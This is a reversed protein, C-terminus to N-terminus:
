RDASDDATYSLGLEGGVQELTLARVELQITFASGLVTLVHEDQEHRYRPCRMRGHPTVAATYRHGKGEWRGTLERCGTSGTLDGDKHLTLTAPINDAFAGHPGRGELLGNLHWTTNELPVPVPPAIASFNLEVGDGTLVLTEGDGTVTEAAQLAAMYRDEATMRKGPCYMEGMMGAGSRFSTGDIDADGSYSNCAATGSINRGDITLTVTNPVPIRGAPGHGSTLVWRGDHGVAPAKPVGAGAGSSQACAALILVLVIAALSIRTM